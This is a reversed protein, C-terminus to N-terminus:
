ECEVTIQLEALAALAALAVFAALAALAALAVVEGQVATVHAEAAFTM